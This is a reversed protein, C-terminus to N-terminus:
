PVPHRTGAPDPTLPYRRGGRGARRVATSVALLWRMFRGIPGARPSTLQGALVSFCHPVSGGVEERSPRRSQWEDDAVLVGGQEIVKWSVSSVSPELSLRSVASELAIEDHGFLQLDAVMDAHRRLYNFFGRLVLQLQSDTSQLQQGIDRAQPDHPSQQVPLMRHVLQGGVHLSLRGRHRLVQGLKAHAPQNPDPPLTGALKVGGVIHVDALQDFLRQEVGVVDAGPMAVM